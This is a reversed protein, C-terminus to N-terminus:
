QTSTQRETFKNLIRDRFVHIICRVMYARAEAKSLKDPRQISTHEVFVVKEPGAGEDGIGEWGSEEDDEDDFGHDSDHDKENVVKAVPDLPKFQAEFHRRFLDQLDASDDPSSSGSPSIGPAAVPAVAQRNVRKRKGLLM